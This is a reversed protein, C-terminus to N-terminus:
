GLIEVIKALINARGGQPKLLVGKCNFCNVVSKADGFVVSESGCNCQVKLFKSM